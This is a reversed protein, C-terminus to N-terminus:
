ILLNAVVTEIPDFLISVTVAFASISDAKKRIQEQREWSISQMRDLAKDDFYSFRDSISDRMTMGYGCAKRGSWEDLLFFILRVNREDATLYQLESFETWPGRCFDSIVVVTADTLPPRDIYLYPHTESSILRDDGIRMLVERLSDVSRVRGSDVFNKESRLLLRFSDKVSFASYALLWLIRAACELKKPPDEMTIGADVVIFVLQEKPAYHTRVVPRLIPHYPGRSSSVRDIKSIPDSPDRERISRFDIGSGIIRSKHIGSRHRELVKDIELKLENTWQDALFISANM